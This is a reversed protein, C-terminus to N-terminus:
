VRKSRVQESLVGFTGLALAFLWVRTLVTEIIVRANPQLELISMNSLTVYTTCAASFLVGAAFGAIPKRISIAVASIVVLGSVFYPDTLFALAGGLMFGTSTPFGVLTLLVYAIVGLFFWSYSRM